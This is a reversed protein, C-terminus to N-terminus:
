GHHHEEHSHVAGQEKGHSHGGMMFLHSLPCLLLLVFLLTTSLEIQFIFVTALAVIPVSCGVIMLILHKRNM